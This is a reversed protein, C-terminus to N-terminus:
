MEQSHDDDKDRQRAGRAVDRLKQARSKEQSGEDRAAEDLIGQQQAAARAIAESQAPDVPIPKGPNNDESLVAKRAADAAAPSRYPHAADGTAPNNDGLASSVEAQRTERRAERDISAHIAELAIAREGATSAAIPSSAAARTEASSVALQKTEGAHAKARAFREQLEPNTVEFGSEAAVRIALDKYKENGTLTIAGWKESALKMAGRIADENKWDHVIVQAGKDVFALAAVRGDGAIRTYQVEDLGGISTKAHAFMPLELSRPPDYLAGAIAPRNSEIRKAADNAVRTRDRLKQTESALRERMADPLLPLAEDLIDLMSQRSSTMMEVNPMLEDKSANHSASEKDRSSAGDSRVGNAMSSASAQTDLRAVGEREPKELSGVNALALAAATRQRFQVAAQTDGLRDVSKGRVSGDQGAESAQLHPRVAPADSPINQAPSEAASYSRWGAAAKAAHARGEARKPVHIANTQVAEVRRRVSEPAGGREMMRVDRLKYAPPNAKEFRSTAEMPIHNRRAEEAMTERWRRLDPIKPDIREGHANTMQVVAHVHLHKRDTHLAFVFAHGSFERRLTARAADLFAEPDTGPKASLIIHAADRQERSRLARKWSNAVVWNAEFSDIPGGSSSSAMAEGDRTLRCLLRAAGDVGHGWGREEFGIDSQFATELKAQLAGLSKRNAFLREARGQASRVASAASVVVHIETSDTQEQVRWAFKHGVLAQGIARDLDDGAPRESLTVVFYLVDKSPERRDGDVDWEAALERVESMGQIFSGDDRELPLDGERSQYKLLAGLRVGGAAYSALKVVAAQSGAALGRRAATPSRSGAKAGSRGLSAGLGLALLSPKVAHSRRTRSALAAEDGEKEADLAERNLRCHLNWSRFAQHVDTV